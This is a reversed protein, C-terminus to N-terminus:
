KKKMGLYPFSGASQLLARNGDCFVRKKPLFASNGTHSWWTWSFSFFISKFFYSFCVASCSNTIIQCATLDDTMALCSSCQSQLQLSFFNPSVLCHANILLQFCKSLAVLKENDEKIILKKSCKEGTLFAILMYLEWWDKQSSERREQISLTFSITCLCNKAQNFSRPALCITQM